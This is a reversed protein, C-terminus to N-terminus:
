DIPSGSFYSSAPPGALMPGVKTRWDVFSQSNQYARFDEEASWLEYYVFTQEDWSDRYLNFQECGTFAGAEELFRENSSMFEGIKETKVQVKVHIIIM